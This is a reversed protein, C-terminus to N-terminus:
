RTSLLQNALAALEPTSEVEANEATVLAQFEAKYTNSLTILHEIEGLTFLNSECGKLAQMRPSDEADEHSESKKIEQLDNFLTQTFAQLREDRFSNLLTMIETYAIPTPTTTNNATIPVTNVQKRGHCDNAIQMEKFVLGLTTGANTLLNLKTRALATEDEYNTEIFNLLHAHATLKTILAKTATTDTQEGHYHSLALQRLQMVDQKINLKALLTQYDPFPAWDDCDLKINLVYLTMSMYRFQSNSLQTSLELLRSLLVNYFPQSLLPKM